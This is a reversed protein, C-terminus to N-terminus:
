EYASLIKEVLIDLKENLADLGQNNTILYDAQRICASLNQKHPHNAHMERAENDLFTQYNIQDTESNRLRIRQYRIAPDADVALLVFRKSKRLTEIEGPTRISEIVCHTGRAIAQKLLQEIIYGPGHQARLENAIRTLSDRDVPIQRRGLEIALFGRVSYHVFSKNKVLYDVVTGKGAGLTGTIGIIIM